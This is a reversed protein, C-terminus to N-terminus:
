AAAGPSHGRTALHLQIEKSAVLRKLFELVLSAKLRLTRLLLM